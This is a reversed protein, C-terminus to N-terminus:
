ILSGKMEKQLGPYKAQLFEEPQNFELEVSQDEKFTLVVFHHLIQGQRLPKRLSLVLQFNENDTMPLLFAQLVNEYNVIFDFSSGHLKMYSLYFSINYRGRPYYMSLDPITILLDEEAETLNLKRKM